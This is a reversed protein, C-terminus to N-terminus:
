GCDSFVGLKRVRVFDVFHVAGRVRGFILRDGYTDGDGNSKHGKQSPEESKLTAAMATITLTLYTGNRLPHQEKRIISYDHSTGSIMETM